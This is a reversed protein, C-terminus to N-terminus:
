CTAVVVVAVVTMVENCGTFMMSSPCSFTTLECNPVLDLRCGGDDRRGRSPVGVLAVPMGSGVALTGGGGSDADVVVTAALRLGGGEGAIGGAFRLTDPPPMGEDSLPGAFGVAPVLFTEPGAVAFRGSVRNLLRAPLRGVGGARAAGGLRAGTARVAGPALLTAAGGARAGGTRVLALEVAGVAAAVARGPRPGEEAATRRGMPIPAAPVLRAPARLEVPSGRLPWATLTQQLSM